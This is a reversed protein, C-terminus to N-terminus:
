IEPPNQFNFRYEWTVDPPENADALSQGYDANPETRAGEQLFVNRPTPSSGDASPAEPDSTPPALTLHDTRTQESPQQEDSSAKPAPPQAAEDSSKRSKFDLYNLRSIVFIYYCLVVCLILLLIALCSVGFLRFVHGIPDFKATLSLEDHFDAVEM